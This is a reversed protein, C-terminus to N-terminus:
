VSRRAAVGAGVATQETNRDMQWCHELLPAKREREMMPRRTTPDWLRGMWYPAGHPAKRTEMQTAKREAQISGPCTLDLYKSKRILTQTENQSLCMRLLFPTPCLCPTPLGTIHTQGRGTVKEGRRESRKEGNGSKRNRQMANWWLWCPIGWSQPRTNKWKKNKSSGQQQQQWATIHPKKGGSTLLFAGTQHLCLIIILFFLSLIIVIPPPANPEAKKSKNKNKEGGWATIMSPPMAVSSDPIKPRKYRELKKCFKQQLQSTKICINCRKSSSSSSHFHFVGEKLCLEAEKNFAADDLLQNLSSPM